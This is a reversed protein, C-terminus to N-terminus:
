VDSHIRSCTVADMRQSDSSLLCFDPMRVDGHKNMGNRTIIPLSVRSFNWDFRFVILFNYGSAGLQFDIVFWNGLLWIKAFVIAVSIHTNPSM